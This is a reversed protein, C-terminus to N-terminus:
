SSHEQRWLRAAIEDMAMSEKRRADLAREAEWSEKHSEVAKLERVADGLAQQAQHVQLQRRVIEADAERIAETLRAEDQKLGRLYLEFGTIDALGVEGRASRADFRASAQARADQAATLDDRARQADREAERMAALAAACADQAADRAQERLELLVQLDYSESM